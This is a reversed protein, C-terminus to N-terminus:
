NTAYATYNHPCVRQEVPPLQMYDGYQYRLYSDFQKIAMVELGEFEVNIYENFIDANVIIDDKWPNVQTCDCNRYKTKIKEIRRGLWYPSFPLLAIQIIKFMISKLSNCKIDTIKTEFLRLGIKIKMLHMKRENSSDPIKDYPIVAVWVGHDCIQKPALFTNPDTVRSFLPWFDCGKKCTMLKFKGDKWVSLFKDYEDRSMMIDIDDDWPIFGKHRIAGILTGYTISYKIDNDRCVKDICALMKVEIQKVEELSLERM